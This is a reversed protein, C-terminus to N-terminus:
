RPFSPDPEGSPRVRRVDARLSEVDLDLRRWAERPVANEALHQMEVEFRSMRRALTRLQEEPCSSRNVDFASRRPLGHEGAITQM